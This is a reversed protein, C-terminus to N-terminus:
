ACVVRVEDRLFAEQNRARDGGDLGAHYPAARIGDATLKSALAEATKRAQCYIIGSERPRARVFSLIQEYAGAKAAVRYTLNPRNFSAVYCGASRLRLQAVVDRRVRETATATLAMVPVDPFRD